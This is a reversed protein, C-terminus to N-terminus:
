FYMKSLRIFKLERIYLCDKELIRKITYSLKVNKFRKESEIGM